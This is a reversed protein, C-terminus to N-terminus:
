LDIRLRDKIAHQRIPRGEIANVERRPADRKFSCYANQGIFKEHFAGFRRFDPTWDQALCLSEKGPDSV